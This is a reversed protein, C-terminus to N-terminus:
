AGPPTSTTTCLEFPSEPGPVKVYVGTVVMSPTSGPLPGSAPPLVTVMVPRQKVPAVDTVNPPMGTVLKETSLSVCIVATTGAPVPVTSTTTTPDAAHPVPV